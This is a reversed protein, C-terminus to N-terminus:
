KPDKDEKLPSEKKESPQVESKKKYDELDALQEKLLAEKEAIENEIDALWEEKETIDDFIPIEVDGIFQGSNDPLPVGRTHNKLLEQVTLAMDPQTLVEKDQISDSPVLQGTFQTRFKQQNKKFTNGKKM